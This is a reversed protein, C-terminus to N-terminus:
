LSAAVCLRRFTPDAAETPMPRVRLRQLDLFSQVLAALAEADSSISRAGDLGRTKLYDISCLTAPATDDLSQNISFGLRFLHGSALSECGSVFETRRWRLVSQLPLDLCLAMHEEPSSTLREDHHIATRPPGGPASIAARIDAFADTVRAKRKHTFLAANVWGAKGSSTPLVECLVNDHCAFQLEEGLQSVFESGPVTDLHDLWDEGLRHVDLSPEDLLLRWGAPATGKTYFCEYNNTVLHLNEFAQWLRQCLDDPAIDASPPVALFHTGHRDARDVLHTLRLSPGRTASCREIIALPMAQVGINACVATEGLPAEHWGDPGAHGIVPLSERCDMQAARAAIRAGPPLAVVQLQALADPVPEAHRVRWNGFVLLSSSDSSM